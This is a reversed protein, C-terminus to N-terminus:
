KKEGNKNREKQYQRAKYIVAVFALIAVSLVVVFGIMAISEAYQEIGFLIMIGLLPILTPIWGISSKTFGWFAGGLLTIIVLPAYLWRVSALAANMRGEKTRINEAIVPAMKDALTDAAKGGSTIVQGDNPDTIIQM